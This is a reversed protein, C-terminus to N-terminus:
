RAMEAVEVLQHQEAGNAAGFHRHEVDANRHRRTGASRRRLRQGAGFGAVGRLATAGTAGARSLQDLAAQYLPQGEAMDRENLYVRVRKVIESHSM